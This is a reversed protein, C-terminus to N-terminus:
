KTKIEGTATTVFSRGDGLMNAPNTKGGGSAGAYEGTGAIVGWTAGTDPGSGSLWLWLVDGNEAILKCIGAMTVKGDTETVSGEQCWESFKDGNADVIVGHIRTDIIAKSGNPMTIESGEKIIAGYGTNDIKQTEANVSGCLLMGGVLVIMWKKM